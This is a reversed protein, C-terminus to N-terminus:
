RLLQKVISAKVEDWSILDDPNALSDAIRRELEERQADTMPLSDADAISDWIEEVLDLKEANTLRDIDLSRIPKAAVDDADITPIEGSRYARLRSEAEEAWRRHRESETADITELLAYVLAARETVPLDKAQELLDRTTKM